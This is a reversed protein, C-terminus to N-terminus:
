GAAETKESEEFYTGKFYVVKQWYYEIKYITLTREFIIKLFIGTYYNIWTCRYIIIIIQWVM